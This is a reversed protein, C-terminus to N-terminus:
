LTYFGRSEGMDVGQYSLKEGKHAQAILHYIEKANYLTGQYDSNTLAFSLTKEDKTEIILYYVEPFLARGGNGITDSITYIKRINRYHITKYRSRRRLNLYYRAIVISPKKSNFIQYLWFIISLLSLGIMLNIPFKILLPTSNDLNGIILFLVFLLISSGLGHYELRNKSYFAVPFTPNYSM